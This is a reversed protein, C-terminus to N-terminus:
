FVEMLFVLMLLDLLPSLNKPFKKKLDFLKHEMIKKTLGMISLPFVAKDTSVFFIKRLKPLKSLNGIKFPYICNTNYMYM